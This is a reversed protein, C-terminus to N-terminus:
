LKSFENDIQKMDKTFESVMWNDRNTSLKLLSGTNNQLRNQSDSSGYNSAFRDTTLHKKLLVKDPRKIHDM